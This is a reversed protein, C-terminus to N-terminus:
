VVVAAVGALVLALGLVQRRSVEDAFFVFGVIVSFAPFMSTAVVASPPDINIGLLYMVSAAGGCVGALVGSTRAGSPPLMQRKTVMVAAALAAAATLRQWVAPWSGSDSSTEILVSLGLGYGLGSMVGWRIGAGVASIESGGGAIFALGVFAVVAGVLALATVASGRAVAYTFPIVASLTAVLPAIITSTSRNLGGFYCGTGVALGLGSLCGLAVDSWSFTSAVLSLSGLAAITAVAQVAFSATLASAVAVVRRGFLESGGIGIAALLGWIAAM